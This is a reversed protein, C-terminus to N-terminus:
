AALRDVIADTLRDLVSEDLVPREEASTSPKGRLGVRRKLQTLEIRIRALEDALALNGGDSAAVPHDYLGNIAEAVPALADAVAASLEDRDIAPGSGSAETALRIDTSVEELRGSLTRLLKDTARTAHRLETVSRESARRYENLAEDQATTVASTSEIYNVLRDSIGSQFAQSAAALADVRATLAAVATLVSEVRVALAPLLPPPPVTAPLTASAESPETRAVTSPRDP